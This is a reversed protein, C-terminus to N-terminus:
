NAVKRLLNHKLLTKIAYNDAKRELTQLARTQFSTDLTALEIDGNHKRMNVAYIRNEITGYLISNRKLIRNMRKIGMKHYQHFHGIEHTAVILALEKDTPIEINYYSTYHKRLKETIQTPLPSNVITPTGEHNLKVMSHLQEKTTNDTVTDEELEQEYKNIDALLICPSNYAGQLAPTLENHEILVAKEIVKNEKLTILAEHLNFNTM